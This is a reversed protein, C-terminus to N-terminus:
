VHSLPPDLEGLSFSEDLCGEAQGRGWQVDGVCRWVQKTWAQLLNM